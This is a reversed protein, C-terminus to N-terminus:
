ALLRWILFCAAGIALWAILVLVALRFKAGRQMEMEIGTPPRIGGAAIWAQLSAHNFPKPKM